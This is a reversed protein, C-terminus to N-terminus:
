GPGRIPAKSPVCGINVCTGGMTGAEVICARRGLEAAKIVASMGAGGTGIVVLDYDADQKWGAPPPQPAVDRRSLVTARYGANKVAEALQEDTIGAGSLAVARGSAWGPVRALSVGDIGQLANTVHVACSDCTM